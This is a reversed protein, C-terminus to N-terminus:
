GLTGADQVITWSGFSEQQLFGNQGGVAAGGVVKFGGDGVCGPLGM